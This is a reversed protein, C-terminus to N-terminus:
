ESVILTISEEKNEIKSLLNAFQPKTIDNKNFLLITKDSFKSIALTEPNHLDQSNIFIYSYEKRLGKLLDEM